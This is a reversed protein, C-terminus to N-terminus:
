EGTEFNPLVGLLRYLGAWTMAQCINGFMLLVMLVSFRRFIALRPRGPLGRSQRSRIYRISLVVSFAQLALCAISVSFGAVLVIM